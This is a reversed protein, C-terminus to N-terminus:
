RRRPGADPDSPKSSSGRGRQQDVGTTDVREKRLDAEVTENEVVAHKRIVLEEAAVTRKEVVAEEAMLPIRVTGEAIEQASPAKGSIPRREVTVEEHVLPVQQEVHRTEVSKRVEVQGAERARKGVRLQEESLVLRKVGGTGGRKGYFASADRDNAPTTPRPMEADARYPPMALLQAPTTSLLRVDDEDDDLRADGIPVLVHRDEDLRLAKRDLEVDLYRVQMAATDAVLSDVRGVRTGDATKVNWGRPDPEGDVVQYDDLDELRALRGPTGDPTTNPTRDNRQM